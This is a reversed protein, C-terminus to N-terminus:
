LVKGYSSIYHHIRLGVCVECQLTSTCSYLQVKCYTCYMSTYRRWVQRAEATCRSAVTSGYMNMHMYMSMHMYMDCTCTLMNLMYM